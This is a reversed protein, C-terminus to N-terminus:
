LLRELTRQPLSADPYRFSFFFYVDHDSAVVASELIPLELDGEIGDPTV